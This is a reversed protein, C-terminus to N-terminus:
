CLVAAFLILAPFNFLFLIGVDFTYIQSFVCLYKRKELYTVGSQTKRSVTQM